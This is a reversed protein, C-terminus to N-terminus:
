KRKKPRRRGQKHRGMSLSKENTVDIIISKSIYRKLAKPPMSKLSENLSNYLAINAYICTKKGTDTKPIYHMSIEVNRESKPLCVEELISPPYQNFLVKHIFLIGQKLILQMPEDVKIEKCVRKNNVKFTNGKHIERNCRMIVTNITEKVTQTQGTYLPAGYLVKSVASSYM